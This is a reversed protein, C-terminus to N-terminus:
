PEKFTFIVRWITLANLAYTVFLQTLQADLRGRNTKMKRLLANILLVQMLARCMTGKFAYAQRLFADFPSTSIPRSMENTKLRNM